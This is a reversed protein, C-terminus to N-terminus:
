FDTSRRRLDIDDKEEQYTLDLEIRNRGLHKARYLAKDAREIFADVTEGPKFLSVGASFMPVNSMSGNSQWRTESARRKVKNLARIAGDSETNPLIVAFEEGGYRSVMDHHRFISLVSKSYVRLVEDGAAHGYEDNISKFHDLDILAFSLPFGYRQVRAVEDELRRMFARRNPLSTLEDTLSLMRVRSLEDSMQRSDSEVLQLFQHTNDLKDARENHGKMLKEIERILTWRLNEIESVDETQRLEALVVELIVGFEENQSITDLVQQKLSDQLKNINEGQLLSAQDDTSEAAPAGSIPHINDAGHGNGAAFGTEPAVEVPADGTVEPLVENATEAEEPTAQPTTPGPNTGGARSAAAAPPSFEEIGFANLLPSIADALLAPDLIGGERIRDANQLVSASLTELEKQTLPPQLRAQLLKLQLHQSSGPALQACYAELLVNVLHAYTIEAKLHSSAIDDLMNEVQHYLVSGAPSTRLSDLLRLVKRVGSPTIEDLRHM